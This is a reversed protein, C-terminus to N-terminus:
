DGAPPGDRDYLGTERSFGGTHRFPFPQGGRLGLWSLGRAWSEHYRLNWIPATLLQARPGNRTTMPAPFPFDFGTNAPIPSMRAMNPSDDGSATGFYGGGDGYGRPPREQNHHDSGGSFPWARRTATQRFMGFPSHLEAAIARANTRFNTNM